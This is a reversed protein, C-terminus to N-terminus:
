RLSRPNSVSTACGRSSVISKECRACFAPIPAIPFLPNSMLGSIPGLWFIAAISTFMLSRGFDLSHMFYDKIDNVYAIEVVGLQKLYIEFDDLFERTVTDIPNLPNEIKSTDPFTLDGCCSGGTTKVLVDQVLGDFNWNDAM